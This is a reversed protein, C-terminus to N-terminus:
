VDEVNGRNDVFWYFFFPYLHGDPSANDWEPDIYRLAGPARYTMEYLYFVTQLIQVAAILDHLPSDFMTFLASVFINLLIFAFAFTLNWYEIVRKTYRDTWGFLM